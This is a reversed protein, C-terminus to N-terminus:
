PADRQRLKEMIFPQHVADLKYSGTLIYMIINLSLKKGNMRQVEGGPVCPYLPNGLADKVWIGLLDNRSYIVATRNGHNVGELSNNVIARGGMSRMLFFSRFVPHNQNLQGIDIDPFVQKLTSRVWRDFVSYKAALSDEIWLTGGSMLYARLRRIEEDTLRGPASKCALVLFPQFFVSDDSLKVFRREQVASVSTVDSLFRLLGFHADPYPDCAEGMDLQAWALREGGSASLPCSILSIPCLSFLFFFFKVRM